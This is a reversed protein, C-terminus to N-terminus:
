KYRILNKFFKVFYKLSTRLYNVQDNEYFEKYCIGEHIKDLIYAKHKLIIYDKNKENKESSVNAIMSNSNIRYEFLEEDIYEFRFGAIFSNLWFEWDEHGQFPMKEDYGGTGEWVTKRYIACADIYNYNLLENGDFKRAIYKREPIDEGFFFPKAYVIDSSGSDLLHIAKKIYDPRIKNDADLPLIYTGKAERIGRNRTFALGKNSHSLVKINKSEFQNLMALTPEDTSGDNVIIIEVPHDNYALVSDVAEKLYQGDNFCPIIISLKV